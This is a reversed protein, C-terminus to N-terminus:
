RKWIVAQGTSLLLPRIRHKECYEDVAKKAGPWKLSGYDDFVIIGGTVLRPYFYEVSGRIPTYFDLDIHVFKYTQESLGQFSRPIWGKHYVVQPFPTLLKQVEEATAAYTGAPKAFQLKGGGITKDTIRDEETPPSLGEFSDFIHFGEGAFGPQDKLIYHLLLFSSLGKYCGCEAVQGELNIAQGLFQVLNYFRQPRRNNPLTGSEKLGQDYLGNFIPDHDYLLAKHRREDASKPSM